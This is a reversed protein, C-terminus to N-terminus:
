AANSFRLKLSSSCQVHAFRCKKKLYLKRVINAFQQGFKAPYRQSKKLKDRIGNVAGSKTKIALKKFSPVKGQRLLEVEPSSSWM